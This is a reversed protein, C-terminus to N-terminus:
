LDSCFRQVLQEIQTALQDAKVQTDSEAYVRVINETQSPRVFSRSFRGFHECLVDIESQLGIPELCRREDKTIKFISRDAVKTKLQRQPLDTYLENWEHESWNLHRLIAEVLLLDSFADGTTQNILRVFADLQKRISKNTVKKLQDKAKQSFLVTGHGNAEFYIGLDSESAKEHLNLIGTAVCHVQIKLTNELYSTSSGNAYATQVVCVSLQDDLQAERLLQKLYVASLVAIKDGDILAFKSDSPRAYFYVIRDADGDLSAYRVNPKINLSEPAKQELKVYDAGCLYNLTGAGNNILEVKLNDQIQELMKAFKPGGVGNACDLVLQPRYKNVEGVNKCIDNFASAFQDYYTQENPCAENPNENYRSVIFHLQPTTLLGYQVLDGQLAKVGQEAADALRNSSDRTDQGIFVLSSKVKKLEAKEAVFKQKTNQIWEWVNEDPINLFETALKVWATGLMEGEPDILKVGNDEALNHSATIMLGIAQGNQHWSRLAALLGTRFVVHDLKDAKERVGCITYNFRHNTKRPYKQLTEQFLQM